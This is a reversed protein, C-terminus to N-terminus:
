FHVLDECYEANVSAEQEEMEEKEKLLTAASDDAEKQWRAKVAEEEEKLADNRDQKLEKRCVCARPYARM